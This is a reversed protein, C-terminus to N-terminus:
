ADSGLGDLSARLRALRVAHGDEIWGTDTELVLSGRGITADAVLDVPLGIGSLFPLDDPHVRMRGPAM